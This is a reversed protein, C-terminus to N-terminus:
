KRETIEKVPLSHLTSPLQVSDLLIFVRMLAQMTDTGSKLNLPFNIVFNLLFYSKLKVSTPYFVIWIKIGNHNTWMCYWCESMCVPVCVPPKIVQKQPYCAAVPGTSPATWRSQVERVRVDGVCVSVCVFLIIYACRCEWLAAFYYRQIM